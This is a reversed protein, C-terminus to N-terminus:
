RLRGGGGRRGDGRRWSPARSAVMQSPVVPPPTWGGQLAIQEPAYLRLYLSFPGEPATIRNPANSAASASGAPEVLITLSGDAAFELATDRSGIAHRPSGKGPPMSSKAATPMM